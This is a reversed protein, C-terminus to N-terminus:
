LKKREQTKKENGMIIDQAERYTKAVNVFCPDKMLSPISRTMNNEKLSRVSTIVPKGFVKFIIFNFNSNDM